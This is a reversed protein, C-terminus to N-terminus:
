EGQGYIKKDLANGTTYTLNLIRDYIQNVVENTKLEMTEFNYVFFERGCWGILAQNNTDFKLHAQEQPDDM